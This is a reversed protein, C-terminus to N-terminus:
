APAAHTPTMQLTPALSRAFLLHPGAKLMIPKGSNLNDAGVVYSSILLVNLMSVFCIIKM